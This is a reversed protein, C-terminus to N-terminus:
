LSVSMIGWGTYPLEGAWDVIHFVDEVLMDFYKSVRLTFEVSPANEWWEIRGITRENYVIAKAVDCQRLGREERIEKINNSIVMYDTGEKM